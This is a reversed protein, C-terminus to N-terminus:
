CYPCVPKILSRNVFPSPNPAFVIRRGKYKAAFMEAALYLPKPQRQFSKQLPVLNSSLKGM